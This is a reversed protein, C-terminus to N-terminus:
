LLSRGKMFLASRGVIDSLRNAFVICLFCSQMFPSAVNGPGSLIRGELPKRRDVVMDVAVAVTVTMAMTMQM